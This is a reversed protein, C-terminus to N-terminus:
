ADINLEGAEVKAHNQRIVNIGGCIGVFFSPSSKLDEARKLFHKYTQCFV